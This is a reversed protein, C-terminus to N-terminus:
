RSSAQTAKKSGEAVIKLVSRCINAAADKGSAESRTPSLENTSVNRLVWMWVPKQNPTDHSDVMVQVSFDPKQDGAAMLVIGDCEKSQNFGDMFERNLATEHATRKSKTSSSDAGSEEIYKQEDFMDTDVIAAGATETLVLRPHKGGVQPSKPAQSCALVALFLIALSSKM